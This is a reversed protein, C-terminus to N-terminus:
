IINYQGSLLLTSLPLENWELAAPLSKWITNNNKNNEDYYNNKKKIKKMMIACHKNTRKLLGTIRSVNM